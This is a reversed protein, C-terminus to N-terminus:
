TKLCEFRRKLYCVIKENNFILMAPIIVDSALTLLVRWLDQGNEKSVFGFFLLILGLSFLSILCIIIRISTISYGVQMSKKYVEVRVYIFIIIAFSALSTFAIMPAHFKVSEVNTIGSLDQVLSNRKLDMQLVDGWVIVASYLMRTTKIKKKWHDDDINYM